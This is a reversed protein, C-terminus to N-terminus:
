MLISSLAVLVELWLLEIVIAITVLLLRCLLKERYRIHIVKLTLTISAVDAARTVTSSNTPIYSTPFTGTEIQFGYFQFGQDTTHAESSTDGLDLYATIGTASTTATTTVRLRRWGNGADEISVAAASGGVGETTLTDLYFERRSNATFGGSGFGFTVTNYNAGKVYITATYQTANAAISQKFTVRSSVTGGTSLYQFATDTGGPGYVSTPGTMNTTNQIEGSVSNLVINTRSEEILLGLSEGTVPDYDFRPAGSLTAGTPIYDTATTGEELQAGWVDIEDGVTTLLVYARVLSSGNSVKTISYRQWSTTIQRPQFVAPDGIALDVETATGTSRIWVSFTYDLGVTASGYVKNISNLGASPFSYRRANITGDPALVVGNLQADTTGVVVSYDSYTLLNVPSTKILGDSGVYTGTSARSFTILNKGSINDLLSKNSAFDL